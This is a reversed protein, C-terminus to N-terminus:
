SPEGRLADVVELVVADWASPSDYQSRADPELYSLVQSRFTGFDV